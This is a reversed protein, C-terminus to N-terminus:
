VLFLSDFPRNLSFSALSSIAPKYTFNFSNYGTKSYCVM